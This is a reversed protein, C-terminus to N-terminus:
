RAERRSPKKDAAHSPARAVPSPNEICQYATGSATRLCQERTAFDCQVAGERETCWTYEAGYAPQPIIPSFGGLNAAATVVLPLAITRLHKLTRKISTTTNKYRSTQLM